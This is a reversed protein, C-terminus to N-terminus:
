DDSTVWFIEAPEDSLSVCAHGMRSDIYVADGAKMKLPAYHETHLELEGSLVFICEEGTHRVYGGAEDLTRAIVRAKFPLMRKSSLDDCLLRYLYGRGQIYHGDTSATFSRRGIAKPRPTADLFELVTLGFGKALRQIVDYTPSAQNRELKSLASRSVGSRSSLDELTWGNQTRLSKIRTSIITVADASNDSDGISVPDRAKLNELVGKM